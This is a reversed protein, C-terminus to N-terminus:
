KEKGGVNKNNSFRVVDLILGPNIKNVNYCCDFLHLYYVKVVDSFRSLKENMFMLWKAEQYMDDRQKETLGPDGTETKFILDGDWNFYVGFNFDDDGLSMEIIMNEATETVKTITM